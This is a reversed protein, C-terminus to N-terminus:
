GLNNWVSEAQKRHVDLAELSPKEWEHSPLRLPRGALEAYTTTVLTPAIMVAMTSSNVALLGLDFLNHIDARLLLGNTVHNTQLGRYPYIHAAELADVADCGTVACRGGYAALLKQRFDHQGQRQFVAAVTRRRADVVSGPEFKGAQEGTTKVDFPQLRSGVLESTRTAVATPLLFNTRFLGLAYPRYQALLSDDRMAQRDLPPEARSEYWVDVRYPRGPDELFPYVESVIRGAAVIAARDSGGSQMFYVRQGMRMFRRNQNAEWWDYPGHEEIHRQMNYRDPNFQFMWVADSDDETEEPGTSEQDRSDTDAEEPVVSNRQAATKARDQYKLLADQESKPWDCVPSDVRKYWTVCWLVSQADLRDRLPLGRRAAEDRLRDLFHVAHEYVQGSVGRGPRPPYGTLRYAMRYAQDRYMPYSTPDLAMLLFSGFMGYQGGIEDGPIMERLANIREATPTSAEWFKRLALRAQEPQQQCWGMFRQKVKWYLLNNQEDYIVAALQDLWTPLGTRLAEQVNHLRRSIALKYDREEKDFDPWEFFRRAWGIFEDWRQEDSM